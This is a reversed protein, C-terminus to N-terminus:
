QLLSARKKLRLGKKEEVNDFTETEDTLLPNTLTTLYEERTNSAGYKNEKSSAETEFVNRRLNNFTCVQEHRQLPAM